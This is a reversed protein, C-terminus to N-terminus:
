QAPPPPPPPAQPNVAADLAKVSDDLSGVQASFDNLANTAAAVDAVQEPTDQTLNSLFNRVDTAFTQFDTAFTGFRTAFGSVATKLATTDMKIGKLLWANVALLVVLLSLLYDAMM